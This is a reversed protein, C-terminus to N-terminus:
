SSRRTRYRDMRKRVREGKSMVYKDMLIYLRGSKGQIGVARKGDKKKRAM